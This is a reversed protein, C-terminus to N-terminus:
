SFVCQVHFPPQNLGFGNGKQFKFSVRKHFYCSVIFDKENCLFFVLALSIRKVFIIVIMLDYYMKFM